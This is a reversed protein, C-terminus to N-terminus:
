GFIFASGDKEDGNADDGEQEEGEKEQPFATARRKLRCRGGDRTNGKPSLVFYAVAFPLRDNFALMDGCRLAVDREASDELSM